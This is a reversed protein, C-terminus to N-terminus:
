KREKRMKQRYVKEAILENYEQLRREREDTAYWAQNYLSSAKKIEIELQIDDSLEQFSPLSDLKKKISENEKQLNRVVSQLEEFERTIRNLEACVAPLETLHEAELHTFPCNIPTPKEKMTKSEQRCHNKRM